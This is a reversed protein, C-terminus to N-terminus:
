CEFINFRNYNNRFVIISSRSYFSCQMLHFFLSFPILPLNSLASSFSLSNSSGTSSIIWVLVFLFFSEKKFSCLMPSSHSLKLHGLYMYNSNRLFPPLQFCFFYKFFYHSINKWIQYFSYTWVSLFNLM